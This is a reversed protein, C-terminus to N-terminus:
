CICAHRSVTLLYLGVLSAELIVLTQDHHQLYGNCGNASSSHSGVLSPFNSASKAAVWERYSSAPIRTKCCFSASSIAVEPDTHLQPSAFTRSFQETTPIRQRSQFHSQVGDKTEPHTNAPYMTIQDFSKKENCYHMGTPALKWNMPKSAGSVSSM